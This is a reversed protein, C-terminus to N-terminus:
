SLVTLISRISEHLEGNTALYSGGLSPEGSLQTVTGGAETVLVHGAAIDWPFFHTGYHGDFAGSALYALETAASGMHRTRRGHTILGSLNELFAPDDIDSPSYGIALLSNSLTSETSVSIRSENKYAGNDRQATYLDGSAPLYIVGLDLQDDIELAIAVSYHTIGRAYNTTGDLPDIIWRHSSSGQEGSEEALIAHDPFTESIRETIAHEARKDVDTVIDDPTKFEVDHPSRFHDLHITGAAKAAHIAVDLYTNRAM